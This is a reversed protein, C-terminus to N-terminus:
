RSPYAMVDREVLVVTVSSVNKCERTAIEVAQKETWTYVYPVYHQCEAKGPRSHFRVCYRNVKEMKDESM